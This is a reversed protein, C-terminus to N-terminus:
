FVIDSAIRSQIDKYKWELLLSLYIIDSREKPLKLCAIKM